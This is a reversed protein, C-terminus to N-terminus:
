SIPKLRMPTKTAVFHSNDPENTWIQMHVFQQVHMIPALNAVSLMPGQVATEHSTSQWSFAWNLAITQVDVM